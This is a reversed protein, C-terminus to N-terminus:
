LCYLCPAFDLVMFWCVVKMATQLADWNKTTIKHNHLGVAAWALCFFPVIGLLCAVLTGWRRRSPQLTAPEPVVGQQIHASPMVTESYGGYGKYGNDFGASSGHHNAPHVSDETAVSRFRARGPQSLM